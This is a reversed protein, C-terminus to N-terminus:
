SNGVQTEAAIAALLRGAEYAECNMTTTLVVPKYGLTQATKAASECLTRVSGTIVTEVNSLEKPTEQLLYKHQLETLKLGYKEM